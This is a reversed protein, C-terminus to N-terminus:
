VADADAAEREELWRDLSIRRIIARRGLRIVPPGEGRAIIKELHRKSVGIIAAAAAITLGDSEIHTAGM